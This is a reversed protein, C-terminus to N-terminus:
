WDGGTGRPLNNRDRKRRKWLTPWGSFKIRLGDAYSVDIDITCASLLYLLFWKLVRFM